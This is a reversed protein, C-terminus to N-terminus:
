SGAPRWALLQERVLQSLLVLLRVSVSRQVQQV